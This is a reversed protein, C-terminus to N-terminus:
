HKLEEDIQKALMAGMEVGVDLGYQAECDEGEEVTWKDILYPRQKGLRVRIFFEVCRMWRPADYTLWPKTAVITITRLRM